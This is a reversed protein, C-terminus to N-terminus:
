NEMVTEEDNKFITEYVEDYELCLDSLPIEYLESVVPLLADKTRNYRKRDSWIALEWFFSRCTAKMQFDLPVSSSPITVCMMKFFTDPGLPAKWKGYKEDFVFNRKLFTCNLIDVFLAFEGNKVAPTFKMSLHSECIDRYSLNNYQSTISDHVSALIDDGNTIPVVFDFFEDATKGTAVVFIYMAIILSRLSNIETTGYMGSPQIGMAVFLDLLLKVMPFMANTLVGRVIILSTENYGLAELVNYVLTTAAWGVTFPTTIDFDGMDGEILDKWILRDTIGNANSQMDIGVATCFLENFETMLTYFPALYMRSVILHDLSSAYFVRTKKGKPRPEDKLSAGFVMPDVEGDLYTSLITQVRSKVEETAERTFPIESVIPIYTDKKGTYGHGAATHANIRRLYADQEHGNIAVDCTLPKLQIIGKERLGGVIRKTLVRIIDGIIRRDLTARQKNMTRLATNWPSYYTPGSGSPEMRPKGFQVSPVVDYIEEMIEEFQTRILTSQVRSKQKINVSGSLKGYYDVGHLIEYRFASKPLPEELSETLVEPASLLPVMPDIESLSQIGSLILNRDFVVSFGSTGTGGVHFGAICCGNTKQVVLPYGCDGPKHEPYVYEWIKTVNFPKHQLASTPSSRLTHVGNVLNARVKNGKFSCLYSTIPYDDLGIHKTIDKFLVGELSIITIDNGLDMRNNDTIYTDRYNEYSVDKRGSPAVRVLITDSVGLAHTNIIAFNAKLGLLYTTNETASQVKCVRVNGSIAQSFEALDGTYVCASTNPNVINWTNTGKVPLRKYSNGCESKEEIDVLSYIMSTGLSVSETASVKMVTTDIVFRAIHLLEDTVITYLTKNTSYIVVRSGLELHHTSDLSVTMMKIPDVSLDLLDDPQLVRMVHSKGGHVLSLWEMPNPVNSDLSYIYYGEEEFIEEVKRVKKKTAYKYALLAMSVVGLTLLIAKKHNSWWYTVWPNIKTWAWFITLSMILKQKRTVIAQKCFQMPDLFPRILSFVCSVLCFHFVFAASYWLPLWATYLLIICLLVRALVNTGEFFLASFWAIWELYWQCALKASMTVTRRSFNYYDNLPWVGLKESASETIIDIGGDSDITCNTNPVYVKDKDLYRSVNTMEPIQNAVGEQKAIHDIYLKKMLTTFAYIDGGSLLDVRTVENVSVPLFAYVDFDWRDMINPHSLSKAVDLAGTGPIRFENKVRPEVFTFRRLVAGKNKLLVDLNMQADNTDLLFLEFLAKIKGKDGFATNLTMDLTDMLSTIEMLNPDGKNKVIQPNLNGVESMHCIPHSWPEYCEWYDSSLIKPYIQNKNFERGKCQSWLAALYELVRSKGLGPDGHIVVGYPMPRTSSLVRQEAEFVANALALKQKKLIVNHTALPNVKKLYEDISQLLVRGKAVFENIGMKGSVPLGTYLKDSFYLLDTVKTVYNDYPNESLLLDTVPAGEKVSEGIRVLSIIWELCMNILEIVTMKSPKGLTSFLAYTMDKEFWHYSAFQLLLDRFMKVIPGDLVRNLFVHGKQLTESASETHILRESFYDTYEQSNLLIEHAKELGVGQTRAFQYLAMLREILTEATYGQYMFIIWPLVTDVVKFSQGLVDDIASLTTKIKKLDDTSFFGGFPESADPIVRLVDIGRSFDLSISKSETFIQKANRGYLAELDDAIKRNAAKVAERAIAKEVRRARNRIKRPHVSPTPAIGFDAFVQNLHSSIDLDSKPLIKERRSEAISIEKQKTELNHVYEREKKKEAKKKKIGIEAKDRSKLIKDTVSVEIPDKSLSHKYELEMTKKKQLVSLLEKKAQHTEDRKKKVDKSVAKRRELVPFDALSADYRVPPVIAVASNKPEASELFQYYGDDWYPDESVHMDCDSFDGVSLV